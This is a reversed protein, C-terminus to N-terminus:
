EVWYFVWGTQQPRSIFYFKHGTLYFHFLSFHLLPPFHDGNPFHTFPWAPTSIVNMAPFKRSRGPLRPLRKPESGLDIEAIILGENEGSFEDVEWVHKGIELHFRTKSIESDAYKDLLERANAIPIEYEYEDSAIGATAGKITLFAKDNMIRVRVVKDADNMLYGQRCFVGPPKSLKQWQENIVLYKREIEQPM